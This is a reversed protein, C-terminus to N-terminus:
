QAGPQTGCEPCPSGGALGGLGKLDYGCRVCLGNRRRRRRRITPPVQWLGWAILAYFVTNIAFGPWLPLLPLSRASRVALRGHKVGNWQEPNGGLGDLKWWHLCRCPWGARRDWLQLWSLEGEPSRVEAEWWVHDYWFSSSSILKTAARPWSPPVPQPWAFETGAPLVDAADSVDGTKWGWPLWHASWTVLVSLVAGTLLWLSFHM